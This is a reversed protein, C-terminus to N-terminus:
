VMTATTAGGDSFKTLHETPCGAYWKAQVKIGFRM